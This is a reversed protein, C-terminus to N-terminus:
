DDYTLARAPKTKMNRQLTRTIDQLIVASEGVSFHNGYLHIGRIASQPLTEKIAKLSIVTMAQCSGMHLLMLTKNHPFADALQRTVIDGINNGDLDLTHLKKNRKLLECLHSGTSMWDGIGSFSLSLKEVASSSNSTLASLIYRVSTESFSSHTFNVQLIASNSELAAAIL